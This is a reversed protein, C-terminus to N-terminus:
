FHSLIAYKKYPLILTFTNYAIIVYYIEPLAWIVIVVLACIIMFINKLQVMFRKKHLLVELKLTTNILYASTTM